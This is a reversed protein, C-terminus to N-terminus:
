QNVWNNEQTITQKMFYLFFTFVFTWCLKRLNLYHFLHHFHSAPVVSNKDSFCSQNNNEQQNVSRRITASGDVLSFTLPETGPGQLRSTLTDKPLISFGLNNRFAHPFQQITSRNYLSKSHFLPFTSHLHLGNVM